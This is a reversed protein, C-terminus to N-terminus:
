RIGENMISQYKNRITMATSGSVKCSYFHLNRLCNVCLSKEILGSEYDSVISQMENLFDTQTQLKAM